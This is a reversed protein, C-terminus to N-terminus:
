EKEVKYAISEFQEKTVISKIDENYFHLPQNYDKGKEALTSYLTNDVRYPQNSRLFPTECKSNIYDIKYGNVYDGEEILDIPNYSAKLIDDFHSSFVPEKENDLYYAMDLLCNKIKTIKSIKQTYDGLTPVYRIYMGVELERNM